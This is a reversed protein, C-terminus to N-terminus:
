RRDLGGDGRARRRAGRRCVRLARAPRGAIARARLEHHHHASRPGRGLTDLRPRARRRPEDAGPARPSETPPHHHTQRPPAPGPRTVPPPPPPPLPPPALPPPVPLPRQQRTM